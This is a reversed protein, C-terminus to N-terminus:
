INLLFKLGKLDWYMFMRTNTKLYGVGQHPLDQRFVIFEGPELRVYKSQIVKAGFRNIPNNPSPNLRMAKSQELSCPILHLEM